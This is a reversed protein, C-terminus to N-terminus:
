ENIDGVDGDSAAMDPIRLPPLAKINRSNSAVEQQLPPFDSALWTPPVRFGKGHHPRGADNHEVM